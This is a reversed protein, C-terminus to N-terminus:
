APDIKSFVNQEFWTESHVEKRARNLMAQVIKIPMQVLTEGVHVQVWLSEDKDDVVVTLFQDWIMGDVEASLEMMNGQDPGTLRALRIEPRITM